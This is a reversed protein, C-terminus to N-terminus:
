LLGKKRMLEDIKRFVPKIFLKRIIDQKLFRKEARIDKVLGKGADFAKKMTKSDREIENGLRLLNVDIMEVVYYGLAMTLNRLTKQSCGPTFIYTNICVAYKGIFTQNHIDYWLRDYFSKLQGTIERNYTPSGIVLGDSKIMKERVENLDDKLICTGEKLCKYCATCFLIKKNGLFIFETGAGMSQAGELVKRILKATNGNPHPSGCIGIIKIADGM